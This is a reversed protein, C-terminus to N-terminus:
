LYCVFLFTKKKLIELEAEKNQLDLKQNFTLQENDRAAKEKRAEEKKAFEEAAADAESFYAVM